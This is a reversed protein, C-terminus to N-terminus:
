FAEELSKFGLRKCSINYYKEEKEFGIFRRNLEKAAMLTTGSGCFPDLVVQNEVTVLDILIKMLHLPKQAEHLGRDEKTIKTKIINSGLEIGNNLNTNIRLKEENFGGLKNKIINDVLATGQPYPKMFWLIPEFLPRLNGVKWGKWEESHAYDSRREYVASVRQARHPAIDKEWAIMDKFIFGADEMACICRHAYRRGDFIFCSGGEIMVRYWEPAWKMCWNYYEKSIEKDEKSWGNLPKGRKKFISGLKEQAPSQGLLASNKNNHLIDWTDLSIGYPIDSLIMHVSNDDLTSILDISDGLYINDIDNNM